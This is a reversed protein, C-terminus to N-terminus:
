ALEIDLKYYGTSLSRVMHDNLTEPISDKGDYRAIEEGDQWVVVTSYDTMLSIIDILKM